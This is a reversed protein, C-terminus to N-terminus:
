IFQRIGNKREKRVIHDGKIKGDNEDNDYYPKAKIQNQPQSPYFGGFKCNTFNFTCNQFNSM